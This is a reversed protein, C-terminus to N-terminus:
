QNVVCLCVVVYVCAEWSLPSLSLSLSPLSAPSFSHLSVKEGLAILAILIKAQVYNWTKKQLEQLM